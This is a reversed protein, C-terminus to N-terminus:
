EFTISDDDWNSSTLVAPPHSLVTPTTTAPLAAGQASTCSAGSSSIAPSPQCTNETGMDTDNALPAPESSMDAPPAATASSNSSTSNSVTSVHLYRKAAALQIASRSIGAASLSCWARTGFEAAEVDNTIKKFKTILHSILQRADAKM